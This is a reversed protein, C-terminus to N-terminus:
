CVNAYRDEQEEIYRQVYTMGRKFYMHAYNRGPWGMEDAIAQYTYRGWWRMEVAARHKAPLAEVADRVLEELTHPVVAGEGYDDREAWMRASHDLEYNSSTSFIEITM